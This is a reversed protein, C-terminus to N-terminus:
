GLEFTTIGYTRGLPLDPVLGAYMRATEFNSILEYRQVLAAADANPEPIDLFVPGGQATAALGRFLDDAAEADDAFLPGIKAGDRCPRIVGYGSVRGDRILTKATHGSATLWRAVFDRRPAAFFPADYDILADIPAQTGDMLEGSSSGADAKVVGGYRINRHALVFGSKRYNDQQDVVGDLGVTRGALRAMGAQWIRLGYGQGRFDPRVIYFGLFGFTEGYTVVSITCIPADGLYGLLFGDPDTAHFLDADARGPNWGEDAAWGIAIDFAARTAPRIIFEDANAM